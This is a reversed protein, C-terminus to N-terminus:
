QRGLASIAATMETPSAEFVYDGGPSVYVTENSAVSGRQVQLTVAYTGSGHGEVGALSYEVGPPAIQRYHSVTQTGIRDPDGQLSSPSSVTISAVLVAGVLIGLVFAYRPMTIADLLTDWRSGGEWEEVDDHEITRHIWLREETDFTEGCDECTAM